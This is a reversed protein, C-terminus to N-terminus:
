IFPVVVAVKSVVLYFVLLFLSFFALFVHIFGFLCELFIVPPNLPPSLNKGGCSFLFM